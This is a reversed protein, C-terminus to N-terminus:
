PLDLLGTNSSVSFTKTVQGSTLSVSQGGGQTPKGLTDFEIQYVDEFSVGTFETDLNIQMPSQTSPDTIPTGPATQYIEYQTTSITRFGHVTGTTMARDQAYRIDAMVKLTAAHVSPGEFDISLAGVAIIGMLALTMVLEIVTFGHKLTRIM